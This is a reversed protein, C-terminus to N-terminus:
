KIGLHTDTKKHGEDVNKEHVEDVDSSVRMSLKHLLCRM